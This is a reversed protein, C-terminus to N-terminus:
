FGGSLLKYFFLEAFRWLGKYDQEESRLFWYYIKLVNNKMLSVFVMSFYSFDNGFTGEVEEERFNRGTHFHRKKKKKKRM